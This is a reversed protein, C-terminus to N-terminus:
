APLELTPPEIVEARKMQDLKTQAEEVLGSLVSHFNVNTNIDIRATAEGRFLLVKEAGIGAAIMADKGSKMDPALQIAREFFAETATFALDGLTKKEKAIETRSSIELHRLLHYSMHLRKMIKRYPVTERPEALLKIAAKAVDPRDRWLREATYSFEDKSYDVLPKDDGLLLDLQTGTIESLMQPPDIPILSSNEDEDDDGPTAIAIKSM